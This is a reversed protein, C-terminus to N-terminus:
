TAGQATLRLLAWSQASALAASTVAVIATVAIGADSLASHGCVLLAAGAAAWAENSAVVSWFATRGADIWAFGLTVLGWVLMAAGLWFLLTEVPIGAVHSVGPALWTAMWAKALMFDFGLLIDAAAGLLFPLLAQEPIDPGLSRTAKATM